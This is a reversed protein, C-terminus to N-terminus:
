GTKIKVKIGANKKEGSLIHTSVRTDSSEDPLKNLLHCRSMRYKYFLDKVSNTPEQFSVKLSVAYLLDEM